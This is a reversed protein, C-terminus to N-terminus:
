AGVPTQGTPPPTQNAEYALRCAPRKQGEDDQQSGHREVFEALAQDVLVTMPQGTQESIRHLQRIWQSHIRPQYLREDDRWTMREPTM